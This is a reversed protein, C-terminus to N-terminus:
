SAAEADPQQELAAIVKDFEDTTLADRHAVPRGIIHAIGPIQEAEPIGKQGFLAFLKGRQRATLKPEPADEVVDADEIDEGPPPTVVDETAVHEAPRQVAARLGAVGPSKTTAPAPDREIEDPTYGVGYLAESCAKRAVASIARWELMTLPQKKYNDKGSLGMSQAWAMDRTVTHEFDPDDSRIITATVSM